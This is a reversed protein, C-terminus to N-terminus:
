SAEDVIRKFKYGGASNRKGLLVESIHGQRVGLMQSAVLQSDYTENNNLCLIKQSKEKGQKILAQHVHEPVKKGLWYRSPNAKHINSFWKKYEDDRTGWIEKRRSSILAKEQDTRPIGVNWPIQGELKKITESTHKRGKMPSASYKSINLEPKYKDIYWQERELLNEKSCNELLEFNFSIYGYKNYTSQLYKNTHKEKMLDRIHTNIRQLVNFSSGVYSKKNEKCTILYIGSTNLDRNQLKPYM